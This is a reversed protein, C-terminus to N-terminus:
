FAHTRSTRSTTRHHGGIRTCPERATMGNRRRDASNVPDSGASRTAIRKRWAVCDERRHRRARVGRAGRKRRDGAGGARRGEIDLLVVARGRACLEAVAGTGLGGTVVAIHEESPMSQRQRKNQPRRVRRFRLGGDKGIFLRNRRARSARRSVSERKRRDSCQRSRNKPGARRSWPFRGIFIDEANARRDSVSERATKRGAWALRV